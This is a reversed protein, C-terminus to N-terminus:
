NDPRYFRETQGTALALWCHANHVAWHARSKPSCAPSFPAFPRMAV